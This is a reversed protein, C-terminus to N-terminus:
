WCFEIETGDLYLRYKDADHEVNYGDDYEPMVYEIRCFPESEGVEKRQLYVSIDLKGSVSMFKITRFSNNMYMHIVERAFNEKDEVTNSNAVVTLYTMDNIRISRVVDPIGNHEYRWAHYKEGGLSVVSVVAFILLTYVTFRKIKM